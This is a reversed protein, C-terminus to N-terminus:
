EGENIILTWDGIERTVDLKQDFEILEYFYDWDDDDFDFDVPCRYDHFGQDDDWFIEPFGDFDEEELDVYGKVIIEHSLRVVVGEESKAADVPNVEARVEYNICNEWDKWFEHCVYNEDVHEYVDWFIEAGVGRAFYPLGWKWRSYEEIDDEEIISFPVLVNEKEERILKFGVNHEDPDLEAIYGNGLDYEDYLEGVTVEDEFKEYDLGPFEEKPDFREYYDIGDFKEWIRHDYDFDLRCETKEGNKVVNFYQIM